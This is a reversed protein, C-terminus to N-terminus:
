FYKYSFKPLNFFESIKKGSCAKPFIKHKAFKTLTYETPRFAYKQHGLIRHHSFMTRHSNEFISFKQSKKGIFKHGNKALKPSNNETPQFTYKQKALTHQTSFCAEIRIKSSDLNKLNKGVAARQSFTTKPLNPHFIKQQDFHM